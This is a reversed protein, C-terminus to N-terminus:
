IHILSLLWQPWLKNETNDWEGAAILLQRLAAQRQADDQSRLVRKEERTDTAQQWDLETDFERGTQKLRGKLPVIVHVPATANAYYQRGVKTTRIRM